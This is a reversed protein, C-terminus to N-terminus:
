FTFNVGASYTSTNPYKTGNSTNLEPDWLKFKSLTFLNNGMVYVAANKVHLKSLWSKPLNYSIQLTKLRIFDMNHQWWTSTRFNNINGDKDSGYALRPYFVDQSPNDVTWRDGINSFLNGTGGNGQFPWISSGSLVRDAGQIGQFLLGISLDKYSVNFGFGYVFKPVDGHGIYTQDYADIVGDGNMDKYKIDGAQVKANQDPFPRPTIKKDAESLSEWRNIDNIESQTYLGEAVYGKVALINQGKQSMWPYRQSPQDSDVWKDENFTINGRVSINWDQNIKKNYEVTGDFGKNDVVGVNGYPSSMNNGIFSPISESRERLIGTRHEKFLDFIISLDNNLLKIDFGLDQKRSEEWGVDVANNGIKVGSTKSNTNGLYYGYSGDYSIQELYMFRRDSVNSNGIKGDTYRVKFFSVVNEIPKWFSENSLVWGVGFAPFTGYRKGPAFNEAGNYGINFEAFYRDDFSYTARGAIGRMRYPIANEYSSAPYLKKEQQNFLFLGGIRHVGFTRDYNLSTELYTKKNNDNVKMEYSLDNSGQFTQTLIPQGNQDYPVNRNSFYYTSQRKSQILNVQNYVDFAFMASAKLGKTLMDLDQTVRVNSYIQNKTMNDYGRRTADAYPNRFGGNGSIGPVYSQGNVFFMKPYEVPSIEMSASYLSSSSIAPYNGDGLYGQAGIDVTTTETVKLNLNTTFNYRTYQMKVNDDDVNDTNLMGTENYYSVSAYYSANPSGGRVNVNLRRNHGWDNFIENLWDVNPYLYPDVNNSTNNITQQSYVPSEGNNARAENVMNMYNVGNLLDVTKTFKTVSEYYDVSIVPKGVKGPKTKVLIVGNAGRVGYVATASADKLTTISEVDEPDIDNFSREIGDVLILPTSSNPTSIGRIWIDAGDKGPEGTRQVSVVGALRGALATTLSASPTKVDQMKLTSQAGINSIKRQEGYGIVVMENLENVQEEMIVDYVNKTSSIKVETTKFGLYAFTITANDNNISITYQGDIDTLVGNTTNNETVSVGILPEGKVDAVRGSIKRKAQQNGQSLANKDSSKSIFIQRESRKYTYATGDFLENLIEDVSKNKREISVKRNLDINEDLYFFVYKSTKEIEKFVDKITTNNKSKVNVESSQSYINSAFSVNIGIFLFFTILRM